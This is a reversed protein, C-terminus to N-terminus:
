FPSSSRRDEFGPKFRRRSAVSPQRYAQASVDFLTALARWIQHAHVVAVASGQRGLRQTGRLFAAVTTTGFERSRRDVPIALFLESSSVLDPCHRRAGRAASADHWTVEWPTQVM